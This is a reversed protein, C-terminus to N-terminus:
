EWEIADISELYDEYYEMYDEVFRMLYMKYDPYAQVMHDFLFKFAEDEDYVAGDYVGSQQMFADDAACIADIMEPLQNIFSFDGKQHFQELLYARVAAPNNIEEM